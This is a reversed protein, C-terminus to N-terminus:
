ARHSSDTPGLRSACGRLLRIRKSPETATVFYHDFGAEQARELWREAPMGTVAVLM